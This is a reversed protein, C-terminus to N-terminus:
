ELEEPASEVLRKGLRDLYSAIAPDKIVPYQKLAEAAAQRGLEVDQAPTYNNKPAKIPTQSALPAALFVALVAALRATRGTRM